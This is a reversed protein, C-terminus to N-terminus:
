LKWMLSYLFYLDISNPILLLLIILGIKRHKFNLSSFEIGSEDVVKSLSQPCM